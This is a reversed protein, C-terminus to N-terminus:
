FEKLNRSLKAVVQLIEEGNRMDVTPGQCRGRGEWTTRHTAFFESVSGRTSTLTGRDPAQTGGGRGKLAVILSVGCNIRACRVSAQPVTNLKALSFV